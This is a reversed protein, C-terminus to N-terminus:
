EVPRVPRGQYKSIWNSWYHSVLDKTITFCMTYADDNYKECLTSSWYYGGDGAGEIGKADRYGAAPLFISNGNPGTVKMGVVGNQVTETWTCKEDLEQQEAATPMRWSGGWKARAVDYGTGSINAGIDSSHQTSSDYYKYTSWSCNDKEETEGWAFYSGYGEPTTAGVNYTAWKVSLGLDVASAAKGADTLASSDDDDSCSSLGITVLAMTIIAMTIIKKM